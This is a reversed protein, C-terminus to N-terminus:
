TASLACHSALHKMVCSGCVSCWLGPLASRAWKLHYLIGQEPPRAPREPVKLIRIHSQSVATIGTICDALWKASEMRVQQANWCISPIYLSYCYHIFISRQRHFSQQQAKRFSWCMVSHLPTRRLQGQCSNPYNDM